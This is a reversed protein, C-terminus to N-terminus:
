LGALVYDLAEEETMEMLAQLTGCYRGEYEGDDYVNFEGNGDSVMYWCSDLYYRNGVQRM